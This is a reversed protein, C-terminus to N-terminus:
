DGALERLELARAINLLMPCHGYMPSGVYSTALACHGNRYQLWAKQTQELKDADEPAEQALKAHLRAYLTNIERKVQGSVSESCSLVSTNNVAGAETLCRDYLNNYDVAPAAIAALPLLLPLAHLLRSIPNPM